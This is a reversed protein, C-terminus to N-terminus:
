TSDGGISLLAVQAGVALVELPYVRGDVLTIAGPVILKTGGLLQVPVSAAAVFDEDAAERELAARLGDLGADDFSSGELDLLPAVLGAGPDHRLTGKRLCWRYLVRRLM